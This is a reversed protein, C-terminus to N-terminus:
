FTSDEFNPIEPFKAMKEFMRKGLFRSNQSIESSLPKLSKM